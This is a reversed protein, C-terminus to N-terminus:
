AWVRSKDNNGFIYNCGDSGLISKCDKPSNRWIKGAMSNGCKPCVVKWSNFVGRLRYGAFKVLNNALKKQKASDFADWPEVLSSGAGSQELWYTREFRTPTEIDKAVIRTSYVVVYQKDKSELEFEVDPNELLESIDDESYAKM